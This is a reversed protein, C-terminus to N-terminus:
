YNEKPPQKEAKSLQLMITDKGYLGDWRMHSGDYGSITVNLSDQGDVMQLRHRSSDYEFKELKARQPDYIYPNACLAMAGREEIYVSTWAEGNSEWDRRKVTDRNRVLREVRWKGALPTVPTRHVVIMLIVCPVAIASLRFFFGPVRSATVPPHAPASLFLAVLEKWHLLLLYILGLSFLVSNYFAGIAIHYFYNILVINIMVPLLIVGGLLSTRRWLLLASGGIQLGAILLALTYSHAFYSWTLQFGNLAGVAMDDRTFMPAFQTKFVKAFGYISISFALWYRLLARMRAHRRPTNVRKGMQIWTAGYLVGFGVALALSISTYPILFRTLELYLSTPLLMTGYEVLNFIAIAAFIPEVIKSFASTRQM